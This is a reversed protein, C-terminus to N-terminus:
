KGQSQLRTCRQMLVPRLPACTCAPTAKGGNCLVPGRTGAGWNEMAGAAFEPIAVMDSKPLPYPIQFTDDYADLAKVACDLAFEGLEPKGPPTWCRILVGHKTTAAVHDFEGVVFALLYTSMKPTADFVTTKSGDGHTRTRTEPMNSLATMHAPCRLTCAFTAKRRPEDWCPFCRRADISEFQTSAMLKKDGNIDTYTSRYFGAMDANLIGGYTLRLSHEGVTLADEFAVTVTTEGFDVLVSKAAVGDCEAGTFALEKAHLAIEKVPAKVSVKVTVEGDFRHQELFLHLKLDYHVPEVTPPLVVRGKADGDPHTKCLEKGCRCLM